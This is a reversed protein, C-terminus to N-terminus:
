SLKPVTNCIGGTGGIKGCGLAMTEFVKEFKFAPKQYPRRPRQPSDPSQKKDDTTV